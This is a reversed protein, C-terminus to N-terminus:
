HRLRGELDRRCAPLFCHQHARADVGLAPLAAQLSVMATLSSPTLGRSWLKRTRRPPKTLQLCPHGKAGLHLFSHLRSWSTCPITKGRAAAGNGANAAMSDLSHRRSYQCTHAAPRAAVPFPLSLHRSSRVFCQRGLSKGLSSAPLRLNMNLVATLLAYCSIPGDSLAKPQWGKPSCTWSDPRRKM